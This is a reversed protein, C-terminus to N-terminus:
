GEDSTQIEGLMEPIDTHEDYWIIDVGKDRFLQEDYSTIRKIAQPHPLPLVGQSIAHLVALPSQIASPGVFQLSSNWDQM